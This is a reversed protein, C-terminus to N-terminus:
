MFNKLDINEMEKEIYDLTEEGSMKLIPHKHGVKEQLIEAVEKVWYTMSMQVIHGDIESAMDTIRSGEGIRDVLIITSMYHLQRGHDMEREFRSVKDLSIETNGPGIFGIDFRAGVGPKSLITADSERKNKRQSLWFVKNTKSSKEPDIQEFGLLTLVAGLILKEFLKGYMSKESGRLALTQTGIGYFLRLISPWKLLYNNESISVATNLEGFEETLEKSASTIRNSFEKLHNEVEEPNSRLVNQISKGTLGLFWQLFIKEEAKLKNELLENTVINDINEEFDEFTELGKLYTLFFSANSLVIRRQTLGETLTRVNGGSLISAVVGNIVERGVRDIMEKGTFKTLRRGVEPIQKSLLKKAM